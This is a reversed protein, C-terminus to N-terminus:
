SVALLSMLYRSWWNMLQRREPLLEARDYVEELKDRHKWSMQIRVAERSFSHKGLSRQETISTRAVARFGHASMLGGYGARKLAMRFTDRSIHKMASTRSPFCFRSWSNIAHLGEFLLVAEVSLPVLFERKKKMKVAPITWLMEELNVECWEAGALSGPRVFLHALLLLGIKTQAEGVHGHIAQLLGPLGEPRVAPMKKPVHRTLARHLGAAVNVGCKGTLVGHEFVSGCIRLVRYAQDYSGREEIKRITSLLEDRTINGIPESGIDPMVNALRGLVQEAYYASWGPANRNHWDRAVHAFTIGSASQENRKKEKRSASPDVGNALLKRAEDRRERAQRLSVDPYGGLSLMKAKRQYIYRFRWRKSGQPTIQISLGRDDNITYTKERPSANRIAIDSLM